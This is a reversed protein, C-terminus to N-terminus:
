VTDFRLPKWRKAASLAGLYQGLPWAVALALARGVGARGSGDRAAERECQLHLRVSSGIARALLPVTPIMRLGFLEHLRRHLTYTRAFEYGASRDHSHLVVADPVYELRYGALLVSRAWEVDEGIPTEPFRIREWVSRRICSCVNDFTCLQLRAYPDLRDLAAPETLSVRRPTPSAAIWADLYRRTLVTASPKPQQRCYTGAVQMDAMLPATLTALWEDSVPVADQVMLVVLEGRARDVGLNRTLGHNFASPPIRILQQAAAELRPLTGDTSGSDVAVIEYSFETRQRAIAALTDALAEGGNRTPLVISVLPASM